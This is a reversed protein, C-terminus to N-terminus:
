VEVNDSLVGLSTVSGTGTLLPMFIEWLHDVFCPSTKFAIVDHQTMPYARQMWAVRNLIGAYDCVGLGHVCLAYVHKATVAWKAPM